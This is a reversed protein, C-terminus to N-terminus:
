PSTRWGHQRSLCPESIPVAVEFEAEADTNRQAVAPASKARVRGPRVAAVDGRQRPRRLASALLFVVVVAGDKVAVVFEVINRIIKRM